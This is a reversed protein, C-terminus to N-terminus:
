SMLIKQKISTDAKVIAYKKLVNLESTYFCLREYFEKELKGEDFLNVWRRYHAGMRIHKKSELLIKRNKINKEFQEYSRFQYHLVNINTFKKIKDYKKFLYEYTNAIHWAKHNGGRIEILGHPNVITKPGIKTLVLSAEETDMLTKKSYSVPNAVYHTSAFFNGDHCAEDLIMNYRNVTLVSGKFALNEKLNMDNSPLWFEDADNNIVWDAKLDNKAINALQKMWKAQNYQGKEDIILLEFESQLKELIERTGDTSDNDMVAFADVGLAAHTRINAEIIDAENKVLITMVLRFQHPNFPKFFYNLM